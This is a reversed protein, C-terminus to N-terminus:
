RLRVDRIFLRISNHYNNKELRYVIDFEKAYEFISTFDDRASYVGEYTFKDKTLWVSYMGKNIKKPPHKLSVEKTVFLPAPNGEGFPKMREIDDLLSFTIDKFGIELDIKEVPILDTGKLMREAISNLESKFSEIDKYFIEIGAAKKHGGYAFLYEECRGLADMLNFNEISRASGKGIEKDFGIVFCPRYYKEVLRSAVIGLVGHHWGEKYLVLVPNDKLDATIFEDAERLVVTEIDRRLHNYRQLRLAHEKALTFDEELFMKLADKATNVRGSANIRPGLIYGLHFVDVNEKKVGSVECLANISVRFSNRFRRLGEKLYARNEGILPVVDCVISLAVLDLLDNRGKNELAEVLKFTVAASSLYGFPYYADDRKPNVFAYAPTMGRKPKHHDVVIVDMGLSRAFNIEEYANTGCDFSIVLRTGAQKIKRLAEKNLGFGEKIRHPIYFSFNVDKNKIYEHFITLSTLGDVDYDGFLFIKEKDKIAKNIREVAKGIDPLLSCSAFSYDKYGLFTLFDEEKVKRNILLQVTIPSLNYKKALEFTETAFSSIEWRKRM